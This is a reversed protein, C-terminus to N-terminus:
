NVQNRRQRKTCDKVFSIHATSTLHYSPPKRRKRTAEPRAREPLPHLDHFSMSIEVALPSTGLETPRGVASAGAPIASNDASEVPDPSTGNDTSQVTPPLEVLLRETSLRPAIAIEPIAKRNAPFMGTARFGSQINEVTVSKNWAPTSVAFFNEKALKNWRYRKLGETTRHSKFIKFVSKDEPQLCHSTYSPFCFLEINNEKMLNVFNLNYVHSGHGDLLLVHKKGDQVISEVIKEGFECFLKNIWEDKSRRIM